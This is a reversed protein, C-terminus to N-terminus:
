PYENSRDAAAYIPSAIVTDERCLLVQGLFSLPEERSVYGIASDAWAGLMHELDLWNYGILDVDDELEDEAEKEM